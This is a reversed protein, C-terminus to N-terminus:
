QKKKDLNVPPPNRARGRPGARCACGKHASPSRGGGSTPVRKQVWVGGETQAHQGVGGAECRAYQKWAGPSPLLVSGKM